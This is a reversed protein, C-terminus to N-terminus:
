SLRHGLPMNEMIPLPPENDLPQVPSGDKNLPWFNNCFVNDPDYKKKLEVLRSWNKGFSAQTRAASEHRGLFQPSKEHALPACWLYVGSVVPYPGGVSVTRITDYM